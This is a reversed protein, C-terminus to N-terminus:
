AEVLRRSMGLKALQLKDKLKERALEATIAVADKRGDMMAMLMGGARLYDSVTMESAAAAGEFCAKERETVRVGVVESREKRRDM